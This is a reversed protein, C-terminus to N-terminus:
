SDNEVTGNLGVTYHQEHTLEGDELQVVMATQILEGSTSSNTYDGQVGEYDIAGTDLWRQLDDADNGASALGEAILNVGDFYLAQVQTPTGDNSEEYLDKFSESATDDMLDSWLNLEYLDIGSQPDLSLISTNSNDGYLYIVDGSWDTAALDDLLSQLVDFRDAVIVVDPEESDIDEAIEQTNVEVVDHSRNLVVNIDDEADDLDELIAEVATNAYDADASVIAFDTADLEEIAFATAIQALTADNARLQFLYSSADAYRGDIGSGTLLLPIDLDALAPLLANSDPGLIAVAGEARLEAIAQAVDDQNGVEKYNVQLRYLDNGTAEIGGADNIDEVALDVSQRIATARAANLSADPILIGIRVTEVSQASIAMSSMVLVILLILHRTTKM